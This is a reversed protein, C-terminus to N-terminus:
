IMTCPHLASVEYEQMVFSLYDAKIAYAIGLSLGM